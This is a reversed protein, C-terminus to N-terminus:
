GQLVFNSQLTVHESPLSFLELFFPFRDRRCVKTDMLIIALDGLTCGENSFSASSAITSDTFGIQGSQMIRDGELDGEILGVWSFHLLGIMVSVLCNIASIEM